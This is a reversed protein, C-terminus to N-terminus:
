QPWHCCPQTSPLMQPNGHLHCRHGEGPYLHQETPSPWGLPPRHHSPATLRRPCRRPWSHVDPPLRAPPTVRPHLSPGMARPRTPRHVACSRCVRLSSSSTVRNRLTHRANLPVHSGEEGVNKRGTAGGGRRKRQSGLTGKGGRAGRQAEVFEPGELGVWRGDDVWPRPPV